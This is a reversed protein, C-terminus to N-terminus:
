GSSDPEGGICHTRLDRACGDAEVTDILRQYTKGPIPATPCQVIRGDHAGNVEGKEVAPGNAALPDIALPYGFVEAFVAAVRSKSIDTCGFNYSRDHRPAQPRSVTADEFFFGADAHEPAKVVRVGAWAAVARIM